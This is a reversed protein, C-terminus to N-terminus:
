CISDYLVDSFTSYTYSFIISWLQETTGSFDGINYSFQRWQQTLSM